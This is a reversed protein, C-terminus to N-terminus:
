SRGAATVFDTLESLNPMSDACSLRAAVYAGAANAYEGIMRLDWGRVLGHILAGGFADGSGLGCVVPVRLPAVVVRDHRDALVVGEGGMKVVAMQVGRSLLEDVARDPDDTGLAMACESRNGVVVTSRGIAALAARRADSASDWFSPRYDIDFVTHPKRDRITLWHDCATATTGRALTGGTMWLVDCAVIDANSLADNLLTTDPADLKRHFIVRPDEPPDMSAIVVPTREGESIGIRHTDVGFERLRDVVYEGLEHSGVKTLLTVDHGLRAAAVAVNTPSGGVSKNFTQPDRFSAGAERAYLDVSVRGVVIVSGRV